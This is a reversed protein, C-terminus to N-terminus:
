TSHSNTDNLAFCSRGLLVSVQLAQLCSNRVYVEQTLAGRLLVALEDSSASAQIAEGLDILASSAEKSLKPQQRIIHLLNEMTPVRPFANNSVIMPIPANISPLLAPLMCSVNEAIFNLLESRLHWRSWRRMRRKLGL